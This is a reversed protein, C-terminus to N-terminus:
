EVGPGGLGGAAEQEEGSHGGAQGKGCRAGTWLISSIFTHTHTAREESTATGGCGVRGRSRRVQQRKRQEAEYWALDGQAQAQLAAAAAEGAARRKLLDASAAKANLAAQDEALQRLRREAAAQLPSLAHTHSLPHTHTHSLTHPHRHAEEMERGEVM